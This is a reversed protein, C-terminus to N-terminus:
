FLFISFNFLGNLFNVVVKINKIKNKSWIILEFKASAVTCITDMM